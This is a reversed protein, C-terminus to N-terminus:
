GSDLNTHLELIASIFAFGQCLLSLELCKKTVQDMLDHTKFRVDSISCWM